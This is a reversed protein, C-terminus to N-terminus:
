RWVAVFKVSLKLQLHWLTMFMVLIRMEDPQTATKHATRKDEVQGRVVCPLLLRILLITVPAHAPFSIPPPTKKYFHPFHVTNEYFFYLHKKQLFTFFYPTNKQLFTFKEEVCPANHVTDTNKIKNIHPHVRVGGAWPGSHQEINHSVSRCGNSFRGRLHGYPMIKHQRVVSNNNNLFFEALQKYAKAV